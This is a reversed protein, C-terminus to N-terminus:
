DDSEEDVELDIEDISEVDIILKTKCAYLQFLKQEFNFFPGAYKTKQIDSDDVKLSYVEGKANMAIYVDRSSYSNGKSIRIDVYGSLSGTDRNVQLTPNEAQGYERWHLVADRVIESLNVSEPPTEFLKDLTPAIAEKLRQDNYAALREGIAHLVVHNWDAQKDLKLDHPVLQGVAENVTKAFGGYTSFAQGIARDVVDQVNKKIVEGMREPAIAAAVADAITQEIDINIQM